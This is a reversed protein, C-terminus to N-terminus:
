CSYINIRITNIEPSYIEAIKEGKRIWQFPSLVFFREVRGSFRTSVEFHKQRDYDIYGKAEIYSDSKLSQVRLTAQRSYVLLNPSVIQDLKDEVKVLDMSCVPCARPTPYTKEGECKMPCSYKTGGEHNPHFQTHTNNERCSLFLLIWCTALFRGPFNNLKWRM